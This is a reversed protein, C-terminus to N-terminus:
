RSGRGRPARCAGRSRPCPARRGGPSARSGGRSRAAGSRGGRGTGAGRVPELEERAATETLEGHQAPRVVVARHLREPAERDRPRLLADRLLLGPGLGASHLEDGDVGRERLEEGGPFLVAPRPVDPAEALVRVEDDRVPEPRHPVHAAVVPVEAAIALLEADPVPVLVAGPVAEDGVDLVVAPSPLTMRQIM